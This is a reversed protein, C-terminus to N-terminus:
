NGLANYIARMATEIYPVNHDIAKVAADLRTASGIKELLHLDIRGDEWLARARAQDDTRATIAAAILRMRYQIKPLNTGIAGAVATVNTEHQYAAIAKTDILSATRWATRISVAHPDLEPGTSASGKLKAIEAKVQNIFTSWPFDKPDTHTTNGFALRSDNHGYIGHKGKSKLEAVTPRRAEIGYALCLQAALHAARAIIAKSDADAWRNAPGTQEDCLEIGICDQNSGCHYAVTHDGVCQITTKPDVIYHASTKPSSPGNWWEAIARATGPNDSSVTAHIVIAKPIQSGGHYRASIMPVNPAAFTM